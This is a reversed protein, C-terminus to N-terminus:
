GSHKYVFVTLVYGFLFCIGSIRWVLAAIVNGGLFLSDVTLAIAAFTLTIVSCHIPIYRIDAACSVRALPAPYSGPYRWGPRCRAWRPGCGPRPVVEAVEACQFPSIGDGSSGLQPCSRTLAVANLLHLLCVGASGGGCVVVDGGEGTDPILPSIM